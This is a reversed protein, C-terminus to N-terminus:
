CKLAIEIMMILVMLHFSEQWNPWFSQKTQCDFLHIQGIIHVFKNVALDAQWLQM